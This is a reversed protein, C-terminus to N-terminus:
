IVQFEKNDYQEFVYLYKNVCFIRIFYIIEKMFKCFNFSKDSEKDIIYCVDDELKFQSDDNDDDSNFFYKGQYRWYCKKTNTNRVLELELYEKIFRRVDTWIFKFFYFSNGPSKYEIKDFNFIKFFVKNDIHYVIINNSDLNGHIWGELWFEKALISILKIIKDPNNDLFIKSNYNSLDFNKYVITELLFEDNSIKECNGTFGVNDKNLKLLFNAEKLNFLKEKNKKIYEKKILTNGM